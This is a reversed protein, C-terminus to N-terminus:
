RQGADHRDERDQCVTDNGQGQELEDGYRQGQRTDGPKKNLVPLASSAFIRIKSRNFSSSRLPRVKKCATSRAQFRAQGDMRSEFAEVSIVQAMKNQNPEDKPAVITFPKAKVRATPTPTLKNQAITTV